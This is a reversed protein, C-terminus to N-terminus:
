VIELVLDASPLPIYQLMLAHIEELNELVGGKLKIEDIRKQILEVSTSPDYLSAAYPIQPNAGCELLKQVVALRRIPNTQYAWAYYLLNAQPATGPGSGFPWIQDINKKPILSIVKMLRDYNQAQLIESRLSEEEVGGWWFKFKNSTIFFFAQPHSLEIKSAEHWARNVVALSRLEDTCYGVGAEQYINYQLYTCIKRTVVLPLEPLQKSCSTYSYRRGQPIFSPVKLLCKFGLFLTSVIAVPSLLIMLVLFGIRKVSSFSYSKEIMYLLTSENQILTVNKGNFIARIPTSLINCIQHCYSQKKWTYATFVDQNNVSM